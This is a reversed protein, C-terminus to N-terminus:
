NTPEYTTQTQKENDLTEYNIDGCCQCIPVDLPQNKDNRTQAQGIHGCELCQIIM